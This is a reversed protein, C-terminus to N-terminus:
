GSREGAPAGASRRRALKWYTPTAYGAHTGQGVIQYGLRQSFALTEPLGLRVEPLGLKAARREAWRM